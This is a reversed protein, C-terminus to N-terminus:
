HTFTKFAVCDRLPYGRPHVNKVVNGRKDLVQYATLPVIFCKRNLFHAQNQQPTEHGIGSLDVYKGYYKYIGFSKFFSPSFKQKLGYPHWKSIPTVRYKYTIYAEGTSDVHGIRTGDKACIPGTFPLDNKVGVKFTSRYDCFRFRCKNYCSAESVAIAALALALAFAAIKAM